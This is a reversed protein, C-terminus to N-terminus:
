REIAFTQAPSTCPNGRCALMRRRGNQMVITAVTESRRADGNSHICIPSEGHCSLITFLDSACTNDDSNPKWHLKFQQELQECRRRSERRHIVHSRDVIENCLYHNTHLLTKGERVVVQDPTTEVQYVHDEDVITYCRSSARPLRRIEEICDGAFDLELLHRVLLYPPIGPRWKGGMVMNLGISLGHDNMGVYGLLGLFTLQLITRENLISRLVLALDAFRGPLDITQAICSNPGGLAITTCDGASAEQMIERRCQLLYADELTIGAGEALGHVEEAIDPLFREIISAHAQIFESLCHREVSRGLVCEMRAAGDQLFRRIGPGMAFGYQRGREFAPGATSIEILNHYSSNELRLSM